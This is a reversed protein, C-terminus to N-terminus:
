KIHNQNYNLNDNEFIIQNEKEDISNEKPIHVQLTVRMRNIQTATESACLMYKRAKIQTKYKITTKKSFGLVILPLFLGLLVAVITFVIPIKFYPHSIGINFFYISAFLAGSLSIALLGIGIWKEIKDYFTHYGLVHEETYCDTGIVSLKRIDYGQSKLKRIADEAQEQSHYYAVFLRQNNM